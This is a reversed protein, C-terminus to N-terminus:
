SQRGAREKYYMYDNHLQLLFDRPSLEGREIELKHCLHNAISTRQSKYGNDYLGRLALNDEQERMNELDTFIPEYDPNAYSYDEELHVNSNQRKAEKIVYCGAAMDGIRQGKEAVMILGIVFMDMPYLVWRTFCQQFSPPTCDDSIVRIGMAMKGITKGHLFIEQWLNFTYTLIYAILQLFFSVSIHYQSEFAILFLILLLIQIARDILLACIRPSTGALDHAIKVYQGNTIEIKRGKM